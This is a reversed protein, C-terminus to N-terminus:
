KQMINKKSELFLVPALALAIFIGALLVILVSIVTSGLLQALRSSEVFKGLGTLALQTKCLYILALLFIQGFVIQLVPMIPVGTKQKVPKPDSHEIDALLRDFIDDSPEEDELKDLMDVTRQLTSLYERCEECDELHKQAQKYNDENGEHFYIDLLNNKNECHM